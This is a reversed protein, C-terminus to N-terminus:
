CQEYKSAFFVLFLIGGVMGVDRGVLIFFMIFNEPLYRDGISTLCDM